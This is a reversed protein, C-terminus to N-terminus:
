AEKKPAAQPEVQLSGVASRRLKLEVGDAVLLFVRDDKINTIEGYIGGITIVKNGIQLAALMAERAKKQKRQPLIMFFYLVAFMLILFGWSMVQPNDLVLWM